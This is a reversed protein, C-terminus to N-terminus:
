NLKHSQILSEVANAGPPLLLITNETQNWEVFRDKHLKSIMKKLYVTNDQELWNQLDDFKIGGKTVALLILIQQPFKLKPDLIRKVNGSEWVLPTKREILANVIQQADKVSLQHLVRILEAMVWTTANLVLSADMENPDVDGGVHGVNRNNRVEYIAVLVRPILIRFSRPSNQHQDLANCAAVFNRPKAPKSPYSGKGFGDLISFVIESFLGGSLESPQWKRELYHSIISNYEALLPEKLGAPIASLVSSLNM